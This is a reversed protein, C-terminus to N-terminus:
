FDDEMIISGIQTIPFYKTQNFIIISQLKSNPSRFFFMFNFFIAVWCIKIEKKFFPLSFKWFDNESVVVYCILPIKIIIMNLIITCRKKSTIISTIQINYEISLLKKKLNYQYLLIYLPQQFHTRFLSYFLLWVTYSKKCLIKKLLESSLVEFVKTTSHLTPLVENVKIYRLFM